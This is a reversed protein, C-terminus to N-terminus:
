LMGYALLEQPRFSFAFLIFFVKARLAIDVRTGLPGTLLSLINSADVEVKNVRYIVDGVRVGASRATSEAVFGEVECGRLLLGVAGTHHIDSIGTPEGMVANQSHYPSGFKPTPTSPQPPSLKAWAKQHMQEAAFPSPLGLLARAAAAGLEKADSSLSTMSSSLSPSRMDSSLAIDTTDGTDGMVGAEIKKPTISTSNSATANGNNGELNERGVTERRVSSQSSQSRLPSNTEQVAELKESPLRDTSDTPRYVADTQKSLKIIEANKLLTSSRERGSELSKDLRDSVEVNSILIESGKKVTSSSSSTSSRVELTRETTIQKSSAAAAANGAIISTLGASNGTTPNTPPSMVFQRLAQHEPSKPASVKQFRPSSITSNRQPSSFRPPLQIQMGPHWSSPYNQM